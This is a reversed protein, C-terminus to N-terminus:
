RSPGDLKKDIHDLKENISTLKLNVELRNDELARIKDGHQKRQEAGDSIKSDILALHTKTSAADLIRDELGRYLWAGLTLTATLTGVIVGFKTIAKGTKSWSSFAGDNDRHGSDPQGPDHVERQHKRNDAIINIIERDPPTDRETIAYLVSEMIGEASTGKLILPIRATRCAEIVAPDQIGSIARVPLKNSVKKLWEVTQLANSDGLGLDSVICSYPKGQSEAFMICSEAERITDACEAHLGRRKLMEKLVQCSDPHDEIVLVSKNKTSM